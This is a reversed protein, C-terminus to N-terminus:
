RVRQRDPARAAPRTAADRPLAAGPEVPDHRLGEEALLRIGGGIPRPVPTIDRHAELSLEQMLDDIDLKSRLRRGLQLRAQVELAGRHRDLLRGLAPGSGAKALSLLMEPDTAM